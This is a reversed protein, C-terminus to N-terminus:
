VNMTWHTCEAYKYIYIIYLHVNFVCLYRRITLNLPIKKTTMWFVRSISPRSYWHSSSTTSGFDWGGWSAFTLLKLTVGPPKTGWFVMPGVPSSKPWLLHPCIPVLIQFHLSFFWKESKHDKFSIDVNQHILWYLESKLLSFYLFDKFETKYNESIQGYYQIKSWSILTPHWASSKSEGSIEVGVRWGSFFDWLKWSDWLGLAEFVIKEWHFIKNVSSAQLASYDSQPSFNSVKPSFTPNENEQGKSHKFCGSFFGAQGNMSLPSDDNALNLLSNGSNISIGSGPLHSFGSNQPSTKPLSWFFM